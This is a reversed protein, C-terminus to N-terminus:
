ENRYTKHCAACTATVKQFHPELLAVDQPDHLLQRLADVSKECDTLKARYDGSREATDPWRAMEKLQEWLMTVEHGPSIDAHGPPAKWGAKQVLQLHSHHEDMKVMADVLNSPQTIEPLSQVAALEEPTPPKFQAAARYLGPYDPSTGAQRLWAGAQDASWGHSAECMVAVAAPGRHLGHHCHVFFPGDVTTSLKVLEVVRHTPMGDYGIPLHVYRLGHKRAAAVDPKSGDVSVMTKVGLKALAAFAADGEPQSGSYIKDMVRFANRIGIIEIPTAVRNTKPKVAEDAAHSRLSGGPALAVLLASLALAQAARAFVKQAM